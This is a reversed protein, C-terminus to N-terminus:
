VTMAQKQSTTVSDLWTTIITNFPQPDSRCMAHGGYSVEQYQRHPLGAALTQSCFWPVLLDDRACLVLCPHKISSLTDTLDTKMLASLRCQLNHRGQFHERQSNEEDAIDDAHRSLWDAPYLFLPQAQLYAHESLTLLQLRVEFCRRTHSDLTVWGNIIALSSLRHPALTALTLGIMGGLAHGIFHCQEISLDDLIEIVERAMDAMSYGEDLQCASGGTGRQDYVIVRYQSELIALQPHWFSGVGGLGSSLLVTPAQTDTRGSIRYALTSIM